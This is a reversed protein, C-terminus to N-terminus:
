GGMTGMHRVGAQVTGNRRVSQRAIAINGVLFCLAGAISAEWLLWRIEKPISSPLFTYLLETVGGVVFMLALARRNLLEKVAIGFVAAVVLARVAGITFDNFSDGTLMTEMLRPMIEQAVMFGAIAAVWALAIIRPSQLEFYIPLCSVVIGFVMGRMLPDAMQMSAGPIGKKIFFTVLGAMIGLLIFLLVSPLVPPLQSSPRPAPEGATAATFWSSAGFGGAVAGWNGWDIGSSKQGLGLVGQLRQVEGSVEASLDGRARYISVARLYAPVTNMDTPAVMVPLVRNRPHPWKDRAFKLESLTYRGPSVSHPSVFFVMVDAQQIASRIREHFTDGAPLDQDDLFVNHGDGRLALAVEEAKSRDPSAVSLFIRMAHAGTAM